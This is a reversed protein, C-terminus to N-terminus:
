RNTGYIDEKFISNDVRIGEAADLKPITLGRAETTKKM